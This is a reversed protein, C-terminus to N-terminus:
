TTNNNQREVFASQMSAQTQHASVDIRRAIDALLRATHSKLQQLRDQTQVWQTVAAAATLRSKLM